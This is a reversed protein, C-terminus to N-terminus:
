FGSESTDILTGASKTSKMLHNTGRTERRKLDSILNKAASTVERSHTGALVRGYTKENKRFTTQHACSILLPDFHPIRSFFLRDTPPEGARAKWARCAPIRRWTAVRQRETMAASKEVM